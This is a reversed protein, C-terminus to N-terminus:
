LVPAACFGTEITKLVKKAFEAEPIDPSFVIIVSAAAISIRISKVDEVSELLAQLRIAYAEDIKL